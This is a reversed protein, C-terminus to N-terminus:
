GQAPATDTTTGATRAAIRPTPVQSHEPGVKLEELEQYKGADALEAQRRAQYVQVARDDLVQDPRVYLCHNFKGRGDCDHAVGWPQGNKDVGGVPDVFEIGVQKGPDTSLRIIKGQRPKALDESGVIWYTQGVKLVRNTEVPPAQAAPDLSRVARAQGIRQAAAKPDGVNIRDDALHDGMPDHPVPREVPIPSAAAPKQPAHQPQNDAM